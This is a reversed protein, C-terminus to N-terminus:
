KSLWSYLHCHWFLNGDCIIMCLRPKGPFTFLGFLPQASTYIFMVLAAAGCGDGWGSWEGNWGCRLCVLFLEWFMVVFIGAWAILWWLWETSCLLVDLSLSSYVLQPSALV